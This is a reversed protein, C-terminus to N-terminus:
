TICKKLLMYPHFRLVYLFFFYFSFFECIWGIFKNLIAAENWRAIYLFYIFTIIFWRICRMHIISILVCKWVWLRVRRIKNHESGHQKERRREIQRDKLHQVGIRDALTSLDWTTDVMCFQFSPPAQSMFNLFFALFEYLLLSSLWNLTPPKNRISSLNFNTILKIWKAQKRSENQPAGNCPSLFLSLFLSVYLAIVHAQLLLSKDM